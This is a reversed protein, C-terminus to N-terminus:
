QKVAIVRFTHRLGFRRWLPIVTLDVILALVLLPLCAIFLLSRLANRWVSVTRWPVHGPAILSGVWTLLSGACDARPAKEIGSWAIPHFGQEELMRKLNKRSLFHLHQPQLYGLWYRGFLRRLASDPDPVEILLAGKDKLALKAAAIEQAPDTTHELYHFMSVVDYGQSLEPAVQFFQKRYATDIWGRAEAAQINEGQDLGDFQTNNFVEKAQWCFHGHGAGVDLWREAEDQLHAQAFEAREKYTAGQRAFMSKAENRGLGDYFDRYYFNLGSESLRPNQFLHGCDGCSELQFNGPKHQNLDQTKIEVKLKKSQCYPCTDTRELFLDKFGKKLQEAYFSRQKESAITQEKDLMFCKFLRSCHWFAIPWRFLAKIALKKPKLPSGLFVALPSLTFIAFAILGLQGQMAVLGYGLLTLLFAQWVLTILVAVDGQQGIRKYVVEEDFIDVPLDPVVSFDCKECAFEKVNAAIAYLSSRSIKDEVTKESIGMRHALSKKLLLGFGASDGRSLRQARYKNFNVAQTFWLAEFLNMREPVIDIADLGEMEALDILKNKTSKEIDFGAVTLLLWDKDDARQIAGSETDTEVKGKLRLLNKLKTRLTLGEALLLLIILVWFWSM